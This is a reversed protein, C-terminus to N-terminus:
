FRTGPLFDTGLLREPLKVTDDSFRKPTTLLVHNQLVEYVSLFIVCTNGNSEGLKQHTQFREYYNWPVCLPLCSVRLQRRYRTGKQIKQIQAM